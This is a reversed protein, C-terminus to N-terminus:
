SFRLTSSFRRGLTPLYTHYLPSSALAALAISGILVTRRAVRNGILYVLALLPMLIYFQVEVELSWTVGNIPNENGYILCHTDKGSSHVNRGPLAWTVETADFTL